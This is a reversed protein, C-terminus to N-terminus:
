EVGNLLEAAKQLKDNGHDFYHAAEGILAAAEHSGAADFRRMADYLESTHDRNHGLMYKLLAIDRSSVEEGHGHSHEGEHSHSHTHEHTHKHAHEGEHSHGHEHESHM